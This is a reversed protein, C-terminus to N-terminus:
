TYTHIYAPQIDVQYLTDPTLKYVFPLDKNILKRFPGPSWNGYGSGAFTGQVYM